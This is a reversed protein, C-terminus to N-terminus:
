PLELDSPVSLDAGLIRSNGSLREERGDSSIIGVDLFAQAPGNFFKITLRHGGTSISLDGEIRKRGHQERIGNDLVNMGDLFVAAGDDSELFMRVTGDQPAHFTTEWAASRNEGPCQEAGVVTVVTKNTPAGEWATGEFCSLLFGPLAAVLKNDTLENIQVLVIKEDTDPLVQFELRYFRQLVELLQSARSVLVIQRGVLHSREESSSLIGLLQSEDIKRSEIQDSGEAAFRLWPLVVLSQSASKRLLEALYVADRRYFSPVERIFNGDPSYFLRYGPRSSILLYDRDQGLSQAFIHKGHYDLANFPTYAAYRIENEIFVLAPGTDNRSLFNRVGSPNLLYNSYENRFRWPLDRLAVWLGAAAMVVWFLPVAARIPALARGTILLGAATLLFYIGSVEFLMRPEWKWGYWHLVSHLFLYSFFTLYGTLATKWLPSRFAFLPIFFALLNLVIGGSHIRAAFENANRFLNSRHYNWGKSIREVVGQGTEPGKIMYALNFQGATVETYVLASSAIAAALGATILGTVLRKRFILPLCCLGPVVVSLVASLPRMLFSLGTAIGAQILYRHKLSRYFLLLSLLCVSTMLFAPSHAMFSATLSTYYHSSAMLLVPLMAARVSGFFVHGLIFLLAYNLGGIVAVPLWYIGILWGLALLLSNGPPHFGWIRGDKGLMDMWSVIFFEPHAPAEQWVRGSAFIKGQWLYNMEDGFGPMADFLTWQLWATYAAGLVALLIVVAYPVRRDSGCAPLLCGSERRFLLTCLAGALLLATIYPAFVRSLPPAALKGTLLHAGGSWHEVTQDPINIEFRQEQQDSGANFGGRFPNFILIKEVAKLHQEEIGGARDWSTLLYGAIKLSNLVWGKDELMFQGTSYRIQPHYTVTDPFVTGVALDFQADEVQLRTLEGSGPLLSIELTNLPLSFLAGTLFLM